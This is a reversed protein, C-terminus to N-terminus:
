FSYLCSPDLTLSSISCESAMAGVCAEALLESSLLTERLSSAFPVESSFGPIGLGLEVRPPLLPSARSPNAILVPWCQGWCLSMHAKRFPFFFFFTKQGKVYCIMSCLHETGLHSQLVADWCHRKEWMDAARRSWSREKGNVTEWDEPSTPALKCAASDEFEGSYGWRQLILGQVSKCLGLAKETNCTRAM